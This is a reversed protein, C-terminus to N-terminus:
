LIVLCKHLYYLGEDESRSYMCWGDNTMMDAM